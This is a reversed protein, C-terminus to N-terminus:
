DHHHGARQLIEEFTLGELGAARFAETGRYLGLFEGVAHVLGLEAEVVESAARAMQAAHADLERSIVDIIQVAYPPELRKISRGIETLAPNHDTEVM